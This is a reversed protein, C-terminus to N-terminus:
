LLFEEGELHETDKCIALAIIRAGDLMFGIAWYGNDRFYRSGNNILRM